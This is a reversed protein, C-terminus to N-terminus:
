GCNETFSEQLLPQVPMRIADQKTNPAHLVAVYINVINKKTAIAGKMKSAYTIDPYFM